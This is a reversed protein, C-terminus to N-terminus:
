LLNLPCDQNELKLVDDLKLGEERAAWFYLLNRARVKKAVQRAPTDAASAM